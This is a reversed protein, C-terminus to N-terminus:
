PKVAPPLIGALLKGAREQFAKASSWEKIQDLNMVEFGDYVVDIGNALENRVLRCYGAVNRAAAARKAEFVSFWEITEAIVDGLESNEAAQRRMAEAALELAEAMQRALTDSLQIYRAGEPSDSEAGLRPASRLANALTELVATM